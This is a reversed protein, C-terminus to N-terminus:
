VAGRELRDRLDEPGLLGSAPISVAGLKFAGLLAAWLPAENGLMLLVRDRRRVGCHRLFNAARNSWASLDAFSLRQEAGNEELIWLAARDNGRAMPDFYDLAWNFQGLKPWRFDRYATDYDTRYALLFDRAKLFSDMSETRM